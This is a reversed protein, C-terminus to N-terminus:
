APSLVPPETMEVAVALPVPPAQVEPSALGAKNLPFCVYVAIAVWGLERPFGAPVLRGTVNVTSVAAGVTVNFWGTDGDFLVVGDKLPVALSVVCTV